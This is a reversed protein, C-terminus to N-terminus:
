WGFVEHKAQENLRHRIIDIALARRMTAMAASGRSQDKAELAEAALTEYRYQLAEHVDKAESHPIILTITKM